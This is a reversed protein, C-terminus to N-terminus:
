VQMIYLLWFSRKCLETDVGGLKTYTEKKYLELGRFLHTAESAYAWGVNPWEAYHAAMSLLLSVIMDNISPKNQWSMDSSLRCTLIVHAAREVLEGANQYADCAYTEIQRPISAITAASIAICLRFFCPDTDYACAEYQECFSPVHILPLLPYVRELFEAVLAHFIHRPVLHEIDLPEIPLPPPGRPLARSDNLQSPALLANRQAEQVRRPLCTLM